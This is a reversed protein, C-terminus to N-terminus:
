KKPVSWSESRRASKYYHNEISQRDLNNSGWAYFTGFAIGHTQFKKEVKAWEEQIKKIRAIQDRTFKNNKMSKRNLDEM